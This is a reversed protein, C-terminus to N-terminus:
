YKSNACLTFVLIVTACIICFSLGELLLLYSTFSVCSVSVCISLFVLGVSDISDTVTMKKLYWVVSVAYYGNNYLWSM